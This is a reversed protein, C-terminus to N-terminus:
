PKTGQEPQSALLAYLAREAQIKTDHDSSILDALLDRPVSVREPASQQEAPRRAEHPLEIAQGNQHLMMALNAVDLPDAKYMHHYLLSSLHAASATQWGHRGKERSAALKSKMAAAFRDVAADDPHQASQQASLAAVIRKNQAVTMLPQWGESLGDDMWPEHKMFETHGPLPSDYKVYGVVEVEEVASGAAPLSPAPDASYVEALRIIEACVKRENMNPGAYVELGDRAIQVINENPKMAVRKVREAVAADRWTAYGKPGSIEEMVLRRLLAAADACDNFDPDASTLRGIMADVDARGTDGAIDRPDCEVQEAKVTPAAPLEMWFTPQKDSLCPNWKGWDECWCGVTHEGDWLMLLRDKPATDIPRWGDPVGVPLSARRNWMSACLERLQDLTECSNSPDVKDSYDTMAGCAPCHIYHCGDCGDGSHFEAKGGCQCPLLEIKSQGRVVPCEATTHDVAGPCNVCQKAM